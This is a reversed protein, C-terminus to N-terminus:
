KTSPKSAKTTKEGQVEQVPAPEEITDPDPIDIIMDPIRGRYSRLVRARALLALRSSLSPTSAWY